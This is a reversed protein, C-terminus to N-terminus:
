QNIIINEYPEKVMLRQEFSEFAYIIMPIMYFSDKSDSFDYKELNDFDSQDFSTHNFHKIIINRLGFEPKQNIEAKTYLDNNVIKPILEKPFCEIVNHFVYPQPAPDMTPVFYNMRFYPDTRAAFISGFEDIYDATSDTKATQIAKIDRDEVAKFFTRNYDLAFTKITAIKHEVYIYEDHSGNELIKNRIIFEIMYPDYFHDELYHTFIFTQVRENYYLSVFYQKLTTCIHDLSDVMDYSSSRLIPTYKTGVNNVIMKYDEVVLDQLHSDDIHELRYSLKWINSGDYLTDKNVDNVRFLWSDKAHNIIFYDSPYPVITGPLVIADGTIEDSEVGFEGAQLQLAIKDIGYLVFNEIENYRFPCNPGLDSYNMGSSEDLSSQEANIHYYTVMTPKKDNWMYYPNNLLSTITGTVNNIAETYSTDIFKGM